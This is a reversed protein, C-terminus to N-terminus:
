RKIEIINLDNIVKKLEPYNQMDDWTESFNYVNDIGKEISEIFHPKRQILGRFGYAGLVQLFRLLKVYNVSRKLEEVKASDNWLSYYFDLMKNQFDEPFNAKAQYLFSVVDYTLPGKMASQYDIFFVDDNDDVMINRSQFDRIMLGTAKFSNFVSVLQKFEKLLTSKHYHIGLVDVMFNKFYFLDHMIPLEDYAEYEFTQSYDIQNQTKTQLNYLRELSQMVLAKVRESLGEKEIIQSLTEAGLYEQIYLKRDNSIRFIEPTNLNLESFIKTFYFLKTRGLIKM